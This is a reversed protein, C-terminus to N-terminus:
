FLSWAHLNGDDSATVAIGSAPTYGGAGGGFAGEYSPGYLGSGADSEVWVVGNVASSHAQPVEAALRLVMAGGSGAERGAGAGRGAGEGGEEECEDELSWCQVTGDWCGALISLKCSGKRVRVPRAPLWCLCTPAQEPHIEARVQVLLVYGCVSLYM